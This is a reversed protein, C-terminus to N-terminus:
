HVQLNINGKKSMNYTALLSSSEVMFIKTSVWSEMVFKEVERITHQPQAKSFVM